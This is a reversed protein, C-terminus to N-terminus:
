QPAGISPSGPTLVAGGGSTVPGSSGSSGGGGKAAMAAGVAAGGVLAIILAKKGGSMGQPAPEANTQTIVANGTQGESSATVRIDFPGVIRNPQLGRGAAKGEEDTTITLSSNGAFSGGAGNAPLQFTVAAGPVPRENRLVQVVPDKARRLRINNIAGDGELVVVKFDTIPAADNSQQATEQAAPSQGPMALLVSALVSLLRVSGKRARGDYM